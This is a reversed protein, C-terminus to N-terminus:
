LVGEAYFDPSARKGTCLNYYGYPTEDEKKPINQAYDRFRPTAPVDQYRELRGWMGDVLMFQVNNAEQSNTSGFRPGDYPKPPNTFQTYLKGCTDQNQSLCQKMKNHIDLNYRTGYNTLNEFLSDCKCEKKTNDGQSAPGDNWYLCYSCSGQQTIDGLDKDSRSKIYDICENYCSM